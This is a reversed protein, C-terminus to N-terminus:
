AVTFAIFVNANGATSSVITLTDGLNVTTNTLSAAGVMVGSVTGKAITAVTGTTDAITINGATTDESILYVGTIIAAFPVTAAIVNVPTTGNTGKAVISYNVLTSLKAGTVAGANIKATTIASAAITIAGTNAITADGSLAVDTPLNSANGVFIHANTLALGAATDIATWTPAATTGNNIYVVGTIANQVIAGPAWFGATAAPAGSTIKIGNIALSKLGSSVDSDSFGVDVIAVDWSVVKKYQISAM